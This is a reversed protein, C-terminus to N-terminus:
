DETYERDGHPQWFPTEFACVEQEEREHFGAITGEGLPYCVFMNTGRLLGRLGLDWIGVKEAETKSVDEGIGM